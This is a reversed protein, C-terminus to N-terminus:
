AARKDFRVQALVELIHRRSFRRVADRLDPSVTEPGAARLDDAVHRLGVLDGDGLIMARELVHELERVNGKWDHRLFVELAEPAIGVMHRAREEFGRVEGPSQSLPRGMQWTIEEAIQEKHAVFADIFRTVIAAREAISIQRWAAQASKARELTNQIQAATALPREVYVRGDVPSLTKQIETM